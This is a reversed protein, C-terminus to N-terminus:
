RQLTGPDPAPPNAPRPEEPTVPNDEAPATPPLGKPEASTDPPAEYSSPQMPPEANKREGACAFAALVCGLATVFMARERHTPNTMTGTAEQAARLSRPACDIFCSVYGDEEATREARGAPHASRLRLRFAGAFAAGRLPFFAFLARFV